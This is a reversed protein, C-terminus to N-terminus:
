GQLTPRPVRKRANAALYRERDEAVWVAHRKPRINPKSLTQSAM